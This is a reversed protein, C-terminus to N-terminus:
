APRVITDQNSLSGRLERKYCHGGSEVIGKTKNIQVFAGAHRISEEWGLLSFEDEPGYQAFM